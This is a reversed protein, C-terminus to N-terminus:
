FEAGLALHVRWKEDRKGVPKAFDLRVAGVPAVFHVGLGAGTLPEFDGRNFANGTDVFTVARWMPTVYYQYEASAVALSDGGVVLRRESGDPLTVTEVPGLSQYSYGRISYTGGAFFSLSPALDPRFESEFFVTGLETRGVLRHRPALTLVGRLNTYIRVMDLDSGVQDLGSEMAYLQSYGVEPDLPNGESVTHSLSIGPLLYENRLSDAALDWDEILYRLRASAVWKDLKWERRASLERQWSDLSGYENNELRAGFRLQDNLPHSLPIGYTFNARPRIPSYELRTEQWHGFRNLLPTRWTLSLRERTDTSYGLGARYHHRDGPELSVQIPVRHSNPAPELPQVLASGFYGTLQLDSQLEQLRSIEFPEGERFGQLQSLRRESLPYEDFHIEGFHFREGSDYHLIVSAGKREADVEIRHELLTAEYYGRENGLNQLRTKFDEYDGHHLGAGVRLPSDRLLEQFAEDERAEGMVSLDVTEILVRPGTDVRVRLTWTPSDRDLSLEIDPQYYGLANLSREIDRRASYLLNEREEVTDPPSGLYARANDLAEGELGQLNYQLLPEGGMAGFSCFLLFCCGAALDAGGSHRRILLVM